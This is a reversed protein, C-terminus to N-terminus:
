VAVKIIMRNIAMTIQNIDFNEDRFLDSYFVFIIPTFSTLPECQKRFTRYMKFLLILSSRERGHFRFPLKNIFLM